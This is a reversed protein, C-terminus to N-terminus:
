SQKCTIKAVCEVHTTHPFMDVPQIEIVNFGHKALYHLDRALTKPYCSVYVMRAPRMRILADLLNPECGKRPPDVIVIDASIGQRVMEPLVHEAKGRRFEAHEVGNINANRRADLIADEVVDIGYVRTAYPVLSLTMTGIGCFLDVVCAEPVSKELSVKHLGTYKLVTRYLTETQVPNVQYFSRPSIEFTHEGLIDTIRDKGYLVRNIDGLIANTDQQNINLVISTVEPFVDLIRKVFLSKHPLVHGNIVLVIMMDGTKMGTRLMLHRVLGIHRTEDYISINDTDLFERVVSCITNIHEPQIDCVSHEIITHSRKAYFGLVVQGHQREIPYQAKNRYRRPVDMGIAPHIIVNALHAHEAITKKVWVTKARLQATYTLHQLSCGGCRTFVDCFPHIRDPSPQIVSILKGVAYSSAVKIIKIEVQEGSLAYEVIVPLNDLMGQGQGTHSLHTIEITHYSNKTVPM